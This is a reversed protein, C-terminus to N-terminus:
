SITCETTEARKSKASNRKTKPKGGRPKLSRSRSFVSEPVLQHERDNSLTEEVVSASLRRRLMPELRRMYPGKVQDLLLQFIDLINDGLKASVELFANMGNDYLWDLVDEKDVQRENYCDSKNGVIVCPLEDSNSREEKIQEWVRKIEEFSSRNNIAYVLVFAHATSISLRRMAPFAFNGATDLIDVKVLSGNVNYERCYLDEVTEKYQESFTDSLFRQIISSKGVAGAGLFVLRQRQDDDAM